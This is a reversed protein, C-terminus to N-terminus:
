DASVPATGTWATGYLRVLAVTTALIAGAAIAFATFVGTADWVVGIFLPGSVQGVKWAISRLSLSGAVAEFQEGEEVFLAMSAPLRISDGM